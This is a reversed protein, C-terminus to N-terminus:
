RKRGESYGIVIRAAAEPMLNIDAGLDMIFVLVRYALLIIWVQTILFNFLVTLIVHLVTPSGFLVWYGLTVWALFLLAAFLYDIGGFLGLKRQAEFRTMPPVQLPVNEQPNKASM